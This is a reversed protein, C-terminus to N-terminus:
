RRDRSRARRRGRRGPTPVLNGASASSKGTSACSIMPSSPAWATASSSSAPAYEPADHLSRLLELGRRRTEERAAINAPKARSTARSTASPLHDPAPAPLRPVRRQRGPRRALRGVAATALRLAARGQRLPGLSVAAAALFLLTLGWLVLWLGFVPRPVHCPWRLLLVDLWDKFHEWTNPAPSTPWISSSSTRRCAPRARPTGSEAPADRLAGDRALRRPWGAPVLDSQARGM